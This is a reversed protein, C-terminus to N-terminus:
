KSCILETRTTERHFRSTLKQNILVYRSLYLLCEHINALLENSNGIYQVKEELNELSAKKM